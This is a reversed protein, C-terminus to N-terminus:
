RAAATMPLSISRWRTARSRSPFDGRGRRRLTQAGVPFQRDRGRLHRPADTLAARAGDLPLACQFQYFGDRGYIRNWNAISDLPYFYRDWDILSVGAKRRGMDYYIANFVRLNAGEPCLGAPRVAREWRCGGPRTSPARSTKQPLEALTAHRGLMVLSRGLRPPHGICDIWAVSYPVDLNDEFV